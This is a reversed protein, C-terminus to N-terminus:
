KVEKAKDNEIEEVEPLDLDEADINVGEDIAIENEDSEKKNM